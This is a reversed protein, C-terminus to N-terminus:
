GIQVWVVAAMLLAQFKTEPHGVTVGDNFTKVVLALGLSNKVTFALPMTTAQADVSVAIISVNRLICM